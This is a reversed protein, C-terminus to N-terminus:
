KGNVIITGSFSSADIRARGDGYTARITRNSRSGSELRLQLGSRIEGSFTSAKLEFGTGGAVTLRVDGSHTRFDYSGGSTLTGGYEVDGSITHLSAADCQLDTGRVTGSISGLDLRRVKVGRATVNGSTSSLEVVADDQASILEVDGSISQGKVVTGAREVRVDGSISNLALDGRVGTLTISGSISEAKIRTGAPATVRYATTVNINRRGGRNRNDPYKASVEVRGAREVVDVTVLRLQERSDADSSGRATKVVEITASNGGGATVTIDGAINRLEILGNAGVKVTHTAPESQEFRSNRNGQYRTVTRADRRVAAAAERAVIAADDAAGAQGAAAFPAGPALLAVALLPTYLARRNIM